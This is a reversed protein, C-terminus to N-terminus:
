VQVPHVLDNFHVLFEGVGHDLGSYGEGIEVVVTRLVLEFDPRAYGRESPATYNSIYSLVGGGFLWVLFDLLDDELSDVAAGAERGRCGVVLM